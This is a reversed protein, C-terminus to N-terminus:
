FCAGESVDRHGAGPARRGLPAHHPQQPGARLRIQAAPHPRHGQAGTYDQEELLILTDENLEAIELGEETTLGLDEIQEQVVAELAGMTKQAEEARPHDPWLEVFRRFAHLAKVLQFNAMYSGALGLDLDPDDKVLKSLQEAAARYGTTDKLDHCVNLLETLVDIQRPYRLDLTELLDRAEPLRKQEVLAEAQILGAILGPAPRKSTTSGSKHSTAKRKKTM